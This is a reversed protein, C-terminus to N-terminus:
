IKISKRSSRKPSSRKLNSRKKKKISSRKSRQLSRQKSKKLSRQKSKKKNTMSFTSKKKDKSQSELFFKFAKVDYYNYKSFNDPFNERNFIETGGFSSGVIYYGNKVLMKMLEENNIETVKLILGNKKCIEEIENIMYNFHGQGRFNTDVQITQINLIKVMDQNLMPEKEKITEIYSQINENFINYLKIYDYQIVIGCNNGDKNFEARTPYPSEINLKQIIEELYKLYKSFEKKLTDM